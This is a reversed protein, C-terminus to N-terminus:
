AAARLRAELHRELSAGLDDAPFGRVGLERVVIRMFFALVGRARLADVAATRAAARDLGLEDWTDSPVLSAVAAHAAEFLIEEMRKRRATSLGAVPTSVAHAFRIHRAEDRGIHRLLERLLPQGVTLLMGNLLGAAAGELVVQGALLNLEFDRERSLTAFVEELVPHPQVQWGLKEGLFRDLVLHHKAEDALLTGLFWRRDPADDPCLLVTEAALDVAHREGNALAALHSAMERQRAHAREAATMRRLESADGLVSSTEPVGVCSWDVEGSWPLADPSWGRTAAQEALISVSSTLATM